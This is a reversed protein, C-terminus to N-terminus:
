NEEIFYYSIYHVCEQIPETTTSYFLISATNQCPKNTQKNTQMTPQKRNTTKHNQIQKKNEKLFLFFM